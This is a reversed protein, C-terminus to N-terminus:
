NRWKRQIITAAKWYSRDFIDSFVPGYKDRIITIKIIPKDISFNFTEPTYHFSIGSFKVFIDNGKKTIYVFSDLLEISLHNDSKSKMTEFIIPYAYCNM